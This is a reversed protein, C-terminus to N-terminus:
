TLEPLCINVILRHIRQTKKGGVNNLHVEQQTRYSTCCSSALAAVSVAGPDSKRLFTM